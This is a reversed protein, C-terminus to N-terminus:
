KELVRKCVTNPLPHSAHWLDYNNQLNLWLEPMTNFAKSFRLAM